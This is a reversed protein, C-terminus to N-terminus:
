EKITLSKLCDEIQKGQISAKAGIIQIMILDKPTAVAYYKIMAEKNEVKPFAITVELAPYKDKWKFLKKEVLKMMSDEDALGAAMRDFFKEITEGDQLPPLKDSGVTFRCDLEESECTYVTVRMGPGSKEEKPTPTGPLSMTFRDDPSKFIKWPAPEVPFATSCVLLAAISSVLFRNM